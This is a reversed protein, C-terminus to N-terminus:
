KRTDLDRRPGKGRGGYKVYRVYRVDYRCNEEGGKRTKVGVAALLDDIM